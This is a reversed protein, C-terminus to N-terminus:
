ASIPLTEKAMQRDAVPMFARMRNTERCVEFIASQGILGGHGHILQLNWRRNARDGRRPTVVWRTAAAYHIASNRTRTLLGIGGSQEAALQLRRAEVQTMRPIAAVTAAVGKSRCCETVIRLLDTPKPRLLLLREIPLGAALLGPPYIENQLDIWAMSKTGTLASRALLILFAFPSFGLSEVLLEHIAGRCFGDTPLLRDISSLNTFFSSRARQPFAYKLSPSLESIVARM